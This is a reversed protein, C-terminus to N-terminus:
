IICPPSDKLAHLEIEPLGTLKPLSIRRVCSSDSNDDHWHAMHAFWASMGKLVCRVTVLEQAEDTWTGGGAKRVKSKRTRGHSKDTSKGSFSIM